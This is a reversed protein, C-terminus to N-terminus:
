EGESAAVAEEEEIAVEEVETKVVEPTAEAVAEIDEEEVEITVVETAEEAVEAAEQDERLLEMHTERITM